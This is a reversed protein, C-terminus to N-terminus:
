VVACPLPALAVMRMRGRFSLSQQAAGAARQDYDYLGEDVFEALEVVCTCLDVVGRRDGHGHDRLVSRPTFTAAAALAQLGAQRAQMADQRAM